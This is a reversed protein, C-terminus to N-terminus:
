EQNEIDQDEQEKIRLEEAANKAEREKDALEKEM